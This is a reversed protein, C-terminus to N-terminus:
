DAIQKNEKKWVFEFPATLVSLDIKVPQRFVRWGPAPGATVPPQCSAGAATPAASESVSPPPCSAPSARPALESPHPSALTVPEHATMLLRRKRRAPRGRWAAFRRLGPRELLLTQRRARGGGLVENFM